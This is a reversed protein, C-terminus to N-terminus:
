MCGIRTVQALQDGRLPPVGPMNPSYGLDVKMTGSAAISRQMAPPRGFFSGSVVLQFNQPQPRTNRLMVSYSARGAPGPVVVTDFRDAVLAGNCYSAMQARAPLCVASAAALALGVLAFHRAM